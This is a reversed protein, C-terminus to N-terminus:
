SKLYVHLIDDLKLLGTIVYKKDDIDMLENISPNKNFPNEQKEGLFVNNVFFKWRNVEKINKIKM